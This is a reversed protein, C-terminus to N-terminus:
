PFLKHHQKLEITQNHNNTVHTTNAIHNSIHDIILYWDWTKAMVFNMLNNASSRVMQAIFVIGNLALAGIKSGDLGLLKLLGSVFTNEAIPQEDNNGLVVTDQRNKYGMENNKHTTFAQSVLDAIKNSIGTLCILMPM